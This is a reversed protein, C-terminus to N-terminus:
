KVITFQKVNPLGDVNIILMYSGPALNTTPIQYEEKTVNTHAVESIKRGVQDIITYYVKKAEKDLNVSVNMVDVAPNPYINFASNSAKVEKVGTTFVSTIWSIGAVAGTRQQGFRVSDPNNTAEFPYMQAANSPDDTFTADTGAFIPAFFDKTKGTTVNNKFYSRPQFNSEGDCGIFTNAPMVATTWYWTNAETVLPQNANTFSVVPLTFIQQQTDGEVMEHSAIGVKSVEGATMVGDSNADVWKWIFVNLTGFDVLSNDEPDANAPTTVSVKLAQVQYDGKAVFMMPGSIFENGARFGFYSGYNPKDATLDYSTRSFTNATVNMTYTATNDNIFDDTEDAKATYTMEYRGTATTNPLNYFKNVFPNVISDTPAFTAVPTAATNTDFVVTPNGGTPFWTLKAGISVNHLTASGFNALVAGPVIGYSSVSSAGSLQSYPIASAYNIAGGKVVIGLDNTFNNGWTSLTVKVATSADLATKLIAGDAKSIMVVPITVNAGQAGAGMGVPPGDVNNVIFIAVAGATQANLAKVGFECDGRQILAVNGVMASANTLTGCGDYPMGAVLDEGIIGNGILGGWGNADDANEKSITHILPKALATPDVVSIRNGVYDSYWNLDFHPMVQATAVQPATTALMAAALSFKLFNFKKM